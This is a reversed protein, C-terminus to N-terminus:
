VEQMRKKNAEKLTENQVAVREKSRKLAQKLRHESQKRLTVKSEESQLERKLKDIRSQRFKEAM